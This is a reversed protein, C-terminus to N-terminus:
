GWVRHTEHISEIGDYEDIEWAVLDPVEVVRLSAHPGNAAKGLTEVAEVLIRDRRDKPRFTWWTDAMGDALDQQAQKHGREAMWEAAARSLGFGGYSKNIVVKM